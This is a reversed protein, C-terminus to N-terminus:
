NKDVVQELTEVLATLTDGGPKRSGPPPMIAARMKRIVKETVEVDKYASDIDYGRLNLNGKLMQPNHCSSCTRQFVTNLAATSIGRSGIGPALRAAPKPKGSATGVTFAT